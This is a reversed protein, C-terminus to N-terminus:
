ANTGYMEKEIEKLQAIVSEDTIPVFRPGQYEPKNVPELFMDIPRNDFMKGNFFVTSDKYLPWYGVTLGEKSRIETHHGVGFIRYAYNNVPGSPDHKYHYYYGPKPFTSPDVYDLKEASM